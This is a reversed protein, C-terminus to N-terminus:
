RLADNKFEKTHKLLIILSLKTNVYDDSLITTHNLPCDKVSFCQTKASGAGYFRCDHNFFGTDSFSMIYPWKAQTKIM